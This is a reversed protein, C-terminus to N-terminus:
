RGVRVRADVEGKLDRLWKLCAVTLIVGGVAVLIMTTSYANAAGRALNAARDTHRITIGAISDLPVAVTREPTGSLGSGFVTDNLVRVGDLRIIGGSHLRIRVSEGALQRLALTDQWAGPFARTELRYAPVHACATLHLPLVVLLLAAVPKGIRTM